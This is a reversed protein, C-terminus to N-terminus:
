ERVRTKLKEVSDSPFGRPAILTHRVIGDELQQSLVLEGFGTLYVVRVTNGLAELREPILGEILRLSGGLKRVADPFAMPIPTTVSSLKASRETVGTM